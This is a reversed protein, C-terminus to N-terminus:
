PSPNKAGKIKGRPCRVGGEVPEIELIGKDAAARQYRLKILRQRWPLRNNGNGPLDFGLVLPNGM